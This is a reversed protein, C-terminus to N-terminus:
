NGQSFNRLLRFSIHGAGLSLVAIALTRLVLAWEHHTAYHGVAAGAWSLLLVLDYKVHWRQQVRANERVMGFVVYMFAILLLLLTIEVSSM